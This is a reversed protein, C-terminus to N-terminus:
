SSKFAWWRIKIRTVTPTQCRVGIRFTGRSPYLVVGIAMRPALSEYSSKQFVEYAGFFVQESHQPVQMLEEDSSEEVGTMIYVSGMGLGHEIEDSFYSKGAKTNAELEIEAMGTFIEERIITTRPIGLKFDFLNDEPRYRVDLRPEEGAELVGAEAHTLFPAQHQSQGLIGIKYLDSSNYAYEAFPVQNVQEIMFSAGIQLLSIQALYIPQDPDFGAYQDLGLNLYNKLIRDKVPESIIQIVQEYDCHYEQTDDGITVRLKGEPIIINDVVGPQEGAKFNFAVEYRAQRNEDPERFTILGGNKEDLAYIHDGSIQYEIKLRPMQMTKELRLRIEFIEQPNVYRPCIQWIRLDGSQHLLVVDEMLSSFGLSAPDPAEEKVFIHYSEQIRNYEAMEDARTSSGAVSYVPEKGREDYAICLYLNKAAENATFGEIMSLKQTVPSSVVIERGSYDLALGTELSITKDDVAVVQLGCVVGAGHLLRNIMRRKDNVYRQEAEFDRVTLLKGYFFRNREHPYYRSNKM